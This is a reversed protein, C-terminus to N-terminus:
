HSFLPSELFFSLFVEPGLLTVIESVSFYLYFSRTASHLSCIFVAIAKKLLGSIPVIYYKSHDRTKCRSKRRSFM